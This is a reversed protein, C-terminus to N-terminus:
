PCGPSAWHAGSGVEFSVEALPEHSELPGAGTYPNSLVACAAVRRTSQIVGGIEEGCVEQDILITQRRKM